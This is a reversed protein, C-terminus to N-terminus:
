VTARGELLVGIDVIVSKLAGQVMGTVHHATSSSGVDTDIELYRPGRCAVVRHKTALKSTRRLATYAACTLRLVDLLFRTQQVSDNAGRAVPRAERQSLPHTRTGRPSNLLLKGQIQGLLTNLLCPLPM